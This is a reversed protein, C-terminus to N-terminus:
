SFRDCIPVIIATCAGMGGKNFFRKAVVDGLDRIELRCAAAEINAHERTEMHPPIGPGRYGQPRICEMTDVVLVGADKDHELTLDVVETPDAYEPITECAEVFERLKRSRAVQYAGESEFSYVKRGLELCTIATAASVDYMDLM